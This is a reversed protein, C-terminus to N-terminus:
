PRARTWSGTLYMTFADGALPRLDEGQHIAEMGVAEAAFYADIKGTAHGAPGAAGVAYGVIKPNQVDRTIHLGPIKLKGLLYFEVTCSDCVGITKGDLDSPKQYPSSKQVFYRQPESRYPTTMWLRKM